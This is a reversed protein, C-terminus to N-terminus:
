YSPVILFTEVEGIGKIAVEGRSELTFHGRLYQATSRSVQIRGPLGTSEMRSAVNVTDGWLDYTYKHVGIVGAVVPGSHIGIRIQLMSGHTQNFASLAELMALATRVVALAHDERAAPIGAALMYCDGITKIKEVGEHNAIRDFSSMIENLMHVLEQASIGHSLKTFGVLDAFLVTVNEHADAILTEGSKLRGSILKPLINLLVSETKAQELALLEHQKQLQALRMKELDRLRKKEISSTLRARLIVPSFPKPLYDQAGMEICQVVEEIEEGGSIVIVPFGKLQPDAQLRALVEIGTMHPMQVDLLMLDFSEQQLRDLAAQGNDAQEIHTVGLQQLARIIGMRMLKSDDVVLLRAQSLMDSLSDPARLTGGHAAVGENVAGPSLDNM